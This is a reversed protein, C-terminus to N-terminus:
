GGLVALSAKLAAIEEERRAIAARLAAVADGGAKARRLAGRDKTQFPPKKPDAPTVATRQCTNAQHGPTGCKGCKKKAGRKTPMAPEEEAPAESAGARKLMTDVIPHSGSVGLRKGITERDKATVVPGAPIGFAQRTESLARSAAVAHDEVLHAALAGRDPFRNTNREPGDAECRPCAVEVPAAETSM